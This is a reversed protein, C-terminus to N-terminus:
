RDRFGKKPVGHTNQLFWSAHKQFHQLLPYVRDCHRGTLSFVNQANKRGQWTNTRAKPLLQTPSHKLCFQKRTGKKLKNKNYNPKVYFTGLSPGPRALALM